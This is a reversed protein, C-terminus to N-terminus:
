GVAKLRGVVLLYEYHYAAPGDPDGKNARTAFELFERDLTAARDSQDALSAYAAVVPGFTEKFLGRYARPSAATEVYERRTLNLAELREGFRERVHRESGWELPPQADPPPPPACPALVGFFDAALGEPTFNIMGITGGPRCVRLMEDAVAQHDPAFIAGLSSTVADFEDDDFPLAEADAEVWELEVGQKDAERRGGEFNETTLDSAVASAGARAAAIAVNGSGAAVDLVRQGSSIGCAEVLVPGLDWVTATAFRHYDGLAWVVRAAAKPDPEVYQAAHEESLENATM